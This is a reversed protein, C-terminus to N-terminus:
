VRRERSVGDKVTGLQSLGDLFMQDYQKIMDPEGKQFTAAEVMCGYLFVKDFNDGLWSTSTTVISDPKYYYHFDIITTFSPTPGLLLLSSSYIGYYKPTGTSTDDTYVERIWNVDRMQLEVYTDATATELSAGFAALFDDPLSATKTNIIVDIEARARLDPIQVLSYIRQEAARIFNDINNVFTDEACVAYDQIAQTLETYNV